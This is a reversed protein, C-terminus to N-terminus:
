TTRTSAACGTAARAGSARTARTRWAATPRSCCRRLLLLLLPTSSARAHLRRSAESAPALQPLPASPARAAGRRSLARAREARLGVVDDAAGGALPPLPHTRGHPAALRWARSPPRVQRRRPAALTVSLIRHAHEGCKDESGDDVVIIEAPPYQQHVVSAIAEEQFKVHGYCPMVVSINPLHTLAALAAPRPPVNNLGLTLSNLADKAARMPHWGPESVPAATSGPLRMSSPLFLVELVLMVGFAGLFCMFCRWVASVGVRMQRSGRRRRTVSLGFLSAVMCRFADYLASPM